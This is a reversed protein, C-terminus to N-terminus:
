FPISGPPGEDGEHHQATCIVPDTPLLFKAAGDHYRVRGNQVDSESKRRWVCCGQPEDPERSGRCPETHRKAIEWSSISSFPVRNSVLSSMTLFAISRSIVM